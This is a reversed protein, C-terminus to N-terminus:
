AIEELDSSDEDVTEEAGPLDGTEQYFKTLITLTKIAEDKKMTLGRSMREHDPDWERIDVKPSAGRWSVLNIEKTWGTQARSVVGLHRVIEFKFEDDREKREKTAM